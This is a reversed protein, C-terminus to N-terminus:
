PQGKEGWHFNFSFQRSADGRLQDMTVESIGRTARLQDLTKYLVEADKTTGTCTVLYGERIEVNKATLVSGDEPFVETLRKLINLHRVSDDFWARYQKIDQQITELERVRPSLGSWEKRLKSLQTQQYAFSGAVCLVGFVLFSIAYAVGRSSYRSVFQQWASVRPPLFEMRGPRAALYHAALCVEPLARAAPSLGMGLKALPVQLVRELHLGLALLPQPLSSVLAETMPGDGFVRLTRLSARLPAPLQALTVRLERLLVTLNIQRNSGEGDVVSDLCRLAAIGDGKGVELSLSTAGVVISVSAEGEQEVSEHLTPAALVFSIPELRAARLAAALRELHGTPIGVVTAHKSGDALQFCSSGLSIPDNGAAFGKEAELALFGPIDAEPLEPLQTQLTLAWSQPVAVVCRRERLGAALLQQRLEQGVLEPDHSLPNLSLSASLSGVVTASGNTRKLHAVDMRQGDFAIGLLSNLRRHKMLDM